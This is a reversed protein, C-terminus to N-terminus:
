RLDPPECEEARAGLASALEGAAKAANPMDFVVAYDEVSHEGRYALLVVRGHELAAAFM